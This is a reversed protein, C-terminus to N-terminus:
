AQSQWFSVPRETVNNELYQEKLINLCQNDQNWTMVMKYCECDIIWETNQSLHKTTTITADIAPEIPLKSYTTLLNNELLIMSPAWQRLQLQSHLIEM